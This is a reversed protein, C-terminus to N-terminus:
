HLSSLSRFNIDAAIVGSVLKDKYLPISATFCFENTAVSRYLGSIYPRGTNAPEAFWPRKSWDKGRVSHDIEKTGINGTLQRGKGDTLYLLEVWPTEKIRGSLYHEMRGQDLSAVEPNKCLEEVFRQAQRHLEIRFSGVLELMKGSGAEFDETRRSVALSMEKLESAMVAIDRISEAVQRSTDSQEKMSETVFSISESVRGVSDIISALSTGLGSAREHMKTVTAISEDMSKKTSTSEDKVKGVRDSIDRTAAITREALRRVEDAVVSFGRGQEGARAAEIAANLALLNTQDAIENIVGVIEDIEQVSGYLGEVHTSLTTTSAGVTRLIDATDSAIVAGERATRMAHETAGRVAETNERVAEAAVSMQRAAAAIAEARVSQAVSNEAASSVMIKFEEGFTVVNGITSVIIREVITRFSHVMEQINRAIFGLGGKGAASFDSTLDGRATKALEAALLGFPQLLKKVALLAILGLTGSGFVTISITVALPARGFLSAGLALYSAFILVLFVLGTLTSTIFAIRATVQSVTRNKSKWEATM